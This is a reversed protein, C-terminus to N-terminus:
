DDSDKKKKRNALKMYDIYSRRNDSDTSWSYTRTAIDEVPKKLVVNSRIIPVNQRRKKNSLESYISDVQKLKTDRDLFSGSKNDSSSPKANRWEKLAKQAERSAEAASGGNKMVSDRVDKVIAAEQKESAAKWAEKDKDKAVWKVFGKAAKGVAVGTNIALGITQINRTFRAANNASRRNKLDDISQMTNIRKVMDAVEETTFNKSHKQFSAADGRKAAWKGLARDVTVYAKKAGKGAAAAAQGVKKAGEAIGYRLRGAGTLSGDPNQYRRVGWKMGKIGHHMLYDDGLSSVGYYSEYYIAM